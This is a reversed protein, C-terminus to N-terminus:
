KNLIEELEAIDKVLVDYGNKFEPSPKIIDLKKLKDILKFVKMTGLALNM